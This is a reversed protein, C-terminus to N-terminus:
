ISLDCVSLRGAESARARPECCMKDLVCEISIVHQLSCMRYVCRTQTATVDDYPYTVDDYPYTVDDVM